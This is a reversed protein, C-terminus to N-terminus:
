PGRGPRHGADDDMVERWRLAIRRGSEGGLMSGHRAPVPHVRLEGRCLHRWLPLTHRASDDSLFLDIAGDYRGTRHTRVARWWPDADVASGGAEPETAMARSIRTSAKGVLESWTLPAIRRWWQVATDTLRPLLTAAAVASPLRPGRQTDLLALLGVTRGRRALRRAMEYAYWGGASWGALHIAGSPRFRELEDAYATIMDDMTAPVPGDGGFGRGLLGYVPIGEGLAEALRLFHWIGGHIGHCVFLPAREGGTKLPVLSRFAAGGDAAVVTSFGEEPPLADGRVPFRRGAQERTRDVLSALDALRPAVFLARLPLRVGLTADVAHIVRVALLSNGGLDFFRDDRSVRVGGLLESWIRQMAAETPTGPADGHAAVDRAVAHGSPVAPAIGPPPWGDSAIADLDTDADDAVARLLRLFREVLGRVTPEDLIDLSYEAVAEAGEDPGAVFLSLTLDFRATGTHVDRRDVPVSGFHSRGRPRELLVLAVNGLPQLRSGSAGPVAAVIEDFPLSGNAVADLFAERAARTVEAATVPGAARRLRVPLTNLHCGVSGALAVGARDALPTLVVSDRRRALGQLWLHCAGLWAHFLTAQRSRAVERWARVVAASVEFRVIGGRGTQGGDAGPRPPWDVGAPAGDLTRAWFARAAAADGAAPPSRRPPPAV